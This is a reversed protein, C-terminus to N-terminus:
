IEVRIMEHLWMIHLLKKVALLDMGNHTSLDSLVLKSGDVPLAQYLKNALRSTENDGVFSPFMKGPESYNCRQLRGSDISAPVGSRYIYRASDVPSETLDAALYNQRWETEDIVLDGRDLILKGDIRITPDRTVLDCHITSDIRGGMYMSSGLAIHATRLLKEDLLMNGTLHDYGSNVGIGIEALNSWNPDGALIAKNIQTRYLWQASSNQMPEIAAVHGAEFHIIFQTNTDILLGPVSGNIVVSGFSGGEMPAIYAEGSPINGWVGDSIVGDSAVAIREWGGIPIHLVHRSGNAQYSTLELQHGYTLAMAVSRCRKILEPYDVAALHLVELSIGPMHGVRTHASWNVKLLHDRFAIFDASGRMCNVVARVQQFIRHTLPSLEVGSPVLKQIDTPIYLMTPQISLEIAMQALIDVVDQTTEDFIILLDQGPNLDLSHRIINTLGKRIIHYDM